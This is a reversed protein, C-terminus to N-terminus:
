PRLDVRSSFGGFALCTLSNPKVGVPIFIARYQKVEFTLIEIRDIM